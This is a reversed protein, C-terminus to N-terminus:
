LDSPKGTTSIVDFYIAWVWPNSDYSARGNIKCWLEAWFAHLLQSQTIKPGDPNLCGKPLFDIATNDEGLALLVRGTGIGNVPIRIGEAIIERDTIDHLRQPQINTIKLWIRAAEKPMHISPHWKDPTHYNWKDGAPRSSYPQIGSNYGFFYTEPDNPQTLCWKERVWLVDGVSGYPCKSLRSGIQSYFFRQCFRGLKDTYKETSLYHKDTSENIEKMGNLRRTMNKKGALILEVM